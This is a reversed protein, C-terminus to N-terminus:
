GFLNKGPITHYIAVGDIALHVTGYSLQNMTACTKYVVSINKFDTIQM